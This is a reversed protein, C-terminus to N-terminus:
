EDKGREGDSVYDMPWAYTDKPLGAKVAAGRAYPVQDERVGDELVVAIAKSGDELLYYAKKYGFAKAEAVKEKAESVTQVSWAILYYLNENEANIQPDFLQGWNSLIAGGLVSVLAIVAVVIQTSDLKIM